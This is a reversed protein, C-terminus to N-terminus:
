KGALLGTFHISISEWKISSTLAHLSNASLWLTLSVQLWRATEKRMQLSILHSASTETITVSSIHWPHKRSIINLFYNSPRTMMQKIRSKFTFTNFFSGPQQENKTDPDPSSGKVHPWVTSKLRYNSLKLCNLLYRVWSNPHESHSLSTGPLFLFPPLTRAAKCM